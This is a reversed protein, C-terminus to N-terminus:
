CECMVSKECEQVKDTLAQIIMRAACPDFVGLLSTTRITHM